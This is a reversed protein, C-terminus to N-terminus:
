LGEDVLEVVHFSLLMENMEFLPWRPRRMQSVPAERVTTDKDKQLLAPMEITGPWEDSAWARVAFPVVAGIRPTASTGIEM